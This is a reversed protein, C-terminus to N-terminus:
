VNNPIVWALIEQDNVIGGGGLDYEGRITHSGVSLTGSFVSFADPMFHTIPGTPGFVKGVLVATVDQIRTRRARGTGDDIHIAYFAIIKDSANNVTVITTQGATFTGGSGGGAESIQALLRDFSSDAPLKRVAGAQIMKLFNDNLFLRGDVLNATPDSSRDEVFSAWRAWDPILIAVVTGAGPGPASTLARAFVGPQLVDGVSKAEPSSGANSILYDRVAVAGTVKVKPCVGDYQIWGQVNQAITVDQPVDSGNNEQAVVGFVGRDAQIQPYVVSEAQIDLGVVDGSAISIPTPSQRNFMYAFHGENATSPRASRGAIAIGSRGQTM